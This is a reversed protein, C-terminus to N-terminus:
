NLFLNNKEQQRKSILLIIKTWTPSTVKKEPHFTGLFRSSRRQSTVSFKWHPASPCYCPSKLCLIRNNQTSYPRDIWHLVICHSSNDNQFNTKNYSPSVAKIHAAWLPWQSVQLNSKSDPALMSKWSTTLGNTIRCVNVLCHLSPSPHQPISSGPFPLSQSKRSCVKLSHITGKQNHFWCWGDGGWLMWSKLITRESHYRAAQHKNTHVFDCTIM